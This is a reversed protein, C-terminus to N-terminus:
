LPRAIHKPDDLRERTEPAEDAATVPAVWPLAKNLTCDQSLLGGGYGEALVLGVGPGVIMHCEYVRAQM